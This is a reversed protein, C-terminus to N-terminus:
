IKVYYPWDPRGVVLRERARTAAVYFQRLIADRGHWGRHQWQARAAPSLDPFVVVTEAEGGKVSHITGLIVGPERALGPLGRQRVIRLAFALRDAATKTSNLELWDLDGSALARQADPTMHERVLARVQAEGAAEGAERLAARGASSRWMSKATLVSDVRRLDRASPMAAEQEAGYETAACRLLANVTEVQKESLPNWRNTYPNHYPIGHQRLLTKTPGLQFECSALVM